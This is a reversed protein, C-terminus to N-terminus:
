DRQEDDTRIDADYGEGGEVGDAGYSIIVYERGDSEYVYPNDWPDNPNFKEVYGKELKDTPETLKELGENTTPYRRNQLRYLRLGKEYTDIDARARTVRGEEVWEFVRVTVFGALLGLITIVVLLEVLTFGRETRRQSM